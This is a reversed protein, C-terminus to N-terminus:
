SNFRDECFSIKTDNYKSVSSNNTWDYVNLTNLEPLNQFHARSDIWNNHYKWTWSVTVVFILMTIISLIIPIKYSQKENSQKPEYIPILLMSM